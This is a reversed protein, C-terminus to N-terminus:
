ILKKGFWQFGAITLAATLLTIAWGVQGYLFLVVAVIGLVVPILFMMNFGSDKDDTNDVQEIPRVEKDKTIQVEQTLTNIKDGGDKLCGTYAGLVM